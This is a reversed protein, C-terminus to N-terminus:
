PLAQGLAQAHLTRAWARDEGRPQPNDQQRVSQTILGDARRQHRAHLILQEPPDLQLSVHCESDPLAAPPPLQGRSRAAIQQAANRALAVAVEATKPFAGFLSSVPGALDGVPWIHDDVSSQLTAPDLAAWGAPRGQGDRAALGAQRVLHGARMPALLLAHDFRLEGQDTTITQRQPNLALPEAYSVHTLVDAYRESWARKFRAMGAGADLVTLRAKLGRQRIFWAICSAREYPAPPCRYPPPPITMVLEGAGPQEAFALLRQRLLPLEAAAFGATFREHLLRQAAADQGPWAGTDAECGTALVLWDYHLPGASSHLTRKERELALADGQVYRWGQADALAPLDVEPLAPAQGVLWANSLPLPQWRPARDLLTVQLEPALQRLARAAALGAYGGGVVLVQQASAQAALPAGLWAAAASGALGQLATRRRLGAPAPARVATAPRAPM